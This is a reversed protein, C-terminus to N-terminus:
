IAKLLVALVIALVGAFMMKVGLPFIGQKSIVALYAGLLGLLSLSIMISVQFAIMVPLLGLHALAFPIIIVLSVLFPSFGDVLAAEFAIIKTARGLRTGKLSRLLKKELDHLSRMREAKETVYASWAGSIFLAFSTSLLTILIIRPETIGAIFAGMIVGLSTITGDFANNAFYRRLIAYVNGTQNIRHIKEFFSAM